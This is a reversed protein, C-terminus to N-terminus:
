HGQSLFDMHHGWLSILALKRTHTQKSKIMGPLTEASLMFIRLRDVAFYGWCCALVFGIAEKTESTKKKGAGMVTQVCVCVSVCVFPTSQSKVVEVRIFLLSGQIPIM